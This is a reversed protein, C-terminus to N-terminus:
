CCQLNMEKITFKNYFLVKVITMTTLNIIKLDHCTTQSLYSKGNKKMLINTM